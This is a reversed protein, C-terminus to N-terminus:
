LGRWACKELTLVAHSHYIIVILNSGHLEIIFRKCIHKDIFLFDSGCIILTFYPM